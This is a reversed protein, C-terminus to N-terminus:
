RPYLLETNIYSGTYLYLPAKDSTYRNRLSQLVPRTPKLYSQSIHVYSDQKHASDWFLGNFDTKFYNIAYITRNLTGEVQINIEQNFIVLQWSHLGQVIM